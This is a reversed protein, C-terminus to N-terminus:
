KWLDNSVFLECQKSPRYNQIFKSLRFRDQTDWRKVPKAGNVLPTPEDDDNVGNQETLPKM